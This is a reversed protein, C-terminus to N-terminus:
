PRRCGLENIVASDLKFYDITKILGQKIDHDARFGCANMKKRSGYSVNVDYQRAPKYNIVCEKELLSSILNALKNITISVGTCINVCQAASKVTNMAHILNDVVDEVFVFDRVQEGDGFITLPKNNLIRTIFKAIVGSYPSTAQQYPGYVNFLRLGTSPLKYIHSLFGANLETSLKDCGYASLPNIRQSETLPMRKSEGYVGCSSAYVVPVNGADVASKFVNLSGDLNIKHFLFWQDFDMSVVPIAALHFCGHITKFLGHINDLQTIDKKIYTAQPHIIKGNSLDDVVLVDHGQAILKKTLQSGIFGAGGTVLYNAM